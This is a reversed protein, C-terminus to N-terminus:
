EMIQKVREEVEKSDIEIGKRKLEIMKRGLVKYLEQGAAVANAVEETILNIYEQKLKDPLVGQEKNLIELAKTLIDSSNIKVKYQDALNLTIANLKDNVMPTIRFGEQTILQNIKKAGKKITREFINEPRYREFKLKTM